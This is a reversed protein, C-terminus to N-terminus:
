GILSILWQERYNKQLTSKVKAQLHIVADDAHMQWNVTSACVDRLTMLIGFSFYWLVWYQVKLYVLQILLM